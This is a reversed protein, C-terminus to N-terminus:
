QCEFNQFAHIIEASALPLRKSSCCPCTRMVPGSQSVEAKTLNIRDVVVAKGARRIGVVVKAAVKAAVKAPVM